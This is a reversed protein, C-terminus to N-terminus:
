KSKKNILSDLDQQEKNTISEMPKGKGQGAAPEGGLGDKAEVQAPDGSPFLDILHNFGTKGAIPMLFFIALLGFFAMGLMLSRMVEKDSKKPGTKVGGGGGSNRSGSKKPRNRKRNKRSM